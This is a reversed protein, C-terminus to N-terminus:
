LWVGIVATVVKCNAGIRARLGDLFVTLEHTRRDEKYRENMRTYGVRECLCARGEAAPAIGAGPILM